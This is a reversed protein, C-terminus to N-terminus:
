ATLVPKSFVEPTSLAASTTGLAEAFRALMEVDPVRTMTEVQTVYAATVGVATAIARQTLGLEKRRAKINAAIVRVQEKPTMEASIM